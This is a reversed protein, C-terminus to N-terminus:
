YEAWGASIFENPLSLNFSIQVLVYVFCAILYFWVCCLFVKQPNDTENALFIATQFGIFSFHLEVLLYPM